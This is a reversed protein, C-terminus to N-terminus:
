APTQRLHKDTSSDNRKEHKLEKRNKMYQDLVEMNVRLVRGRRYVGDSYGLREMERIIVGMTHDSVELTAAATKRNMWTAMYTAMYTDM